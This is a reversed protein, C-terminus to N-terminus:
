SNSKSVENSKTNLLNLFIYFISLAIWDHFSPLGNNGGVMMRVLVLLPFGFIFYYRYSETKFKIQNYFKLGLELSIITTFIFAFIGSSYWAAIIFNHVHNIKGNTEILSGFGSGIIWHSKIEKFTNLLMGIRADESFETFRQFVGLDLFLLAILIVIPAIMVALLLKKSNKNVFYKIVFVLGFIMMSSRSQSMLLLVVIFLMTFKELRKPKKITDLISYLIILSVGFINRFSPTNFDDEGWDSFDFELINFNVLRFFYRYNIKYAEDNFVGFLTKFFIDEGLSITVLVNFLVFFFIALKAGKVIRRHFNALDSLFFDSILIFFIFYIFNKVFLIIGYSPKEAWFISLFFSAFTLFMFLTFYTAKPIVKINLRKSFVKRVLLIIIAFHFFRVEFAGGIKGVSYWPLLFTCFVFFYVSKDILNRLNISLTM